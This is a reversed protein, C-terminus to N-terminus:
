CHGSRVSRLPKKFFESFQQEHFFFVGDRYEGQVRSLHVRACGESRDESRPGEGEEDGGAEQCKEASESDESARAGNQCFRLLCRSPFHGQTEQYDDTNTHVGVLQHADFM